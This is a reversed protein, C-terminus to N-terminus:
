TLLWSTTRIAAALAPDPSRFTIELIRTNRVPKVQMAGHFSGLLASERGRDVQPVSVRGAKPPAQALGGAFAPDQDLHLNKIVELALRDSQLIKSQTDMSVTYDYDVADSNTQVDKFGLNENDEKGLAIRAVADYQPKTRLSLLTALTLTVVVTALIVWKRKHLVWFTETLMSEQPGLRPLVPDATLFGGLDFESSPPLEPTRDNRTYRNTEM